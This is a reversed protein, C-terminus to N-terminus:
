ASFTQVLNLRRFTAIPTWDPLGLQGVTPDVVRDHVARPVNGVDVAAVSGHSITHIIIDGM